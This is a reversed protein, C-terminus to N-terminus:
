KEKHTWFETHFEENFPKHISDLAAGIEELQAANLNQELYPFFEREEYRIHNELLEALRSFTAPMDDIRSDLTAIIETITKHEHLIRQKSPDNDDLYVLIQDEEAKFHPFLAAESFYRIYEVILEPEVQYKLGQKIKWGLLLGHHHDRSLSLLNKDRKM